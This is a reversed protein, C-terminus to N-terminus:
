DSLDRGNHITVKYPHDVNQTIFESVGVVIDFPKCVKTSQSNNHLTIVAPLRRGLMWRLKRYIVAGKRGHFHLCDPNIAQIKSRLALLLGLSRRSKHFPVSKFTVQAPFLDAMSEHAIVSVDIHKVHARTLDSIHREIGGGENIGSVIHCVHM